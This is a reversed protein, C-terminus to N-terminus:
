HSWVKLNNILWYADRFADPNQEVFASCSPARAACASDGWVSGAWDGCFSINFIIKHDRFKRDMDCDGEFTAAPTGWYLPEPTSGFVDEPADDKSWNWVKIHESNWEMAYIGGGRTNFARGFTDERNDAISCGQNSFQGPAHVDCNSTKIKGTQKKSTTSCGSSTHLAYHNAKSDHVGEIIDIEGRAPWHDGVTWFAPWTGCGHPMHDLDLIYLGHTFKHKSELRVSERGQGPGLHTDRDVGVYIGEEASSSILGNKRATNKDVYKVCGHTPDPGTFFDFENFINTHNYEKEIWRYEANVAASFFLTVALLSVNFAFM